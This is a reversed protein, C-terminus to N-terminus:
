NVMEIAMAVANGGGLCLSAIGKTKNNARLAHLLTVLVRTGSAGIPHGLAIAGGRVNVKEEDIALERIGAIVQTAFAENLEFLDVEALSWKAKAAVQRVAEVPAIFLDKPAGGSTHYAVIRAAPQSAQSAQLNRWRDQAVVVVAAAGDNITSANGATVTGSSNFVPRLKALAELTSEARVGEDTTFDITGKKDAIQVPVIENTFAGSKIAEAARLQSRLALADQDQRSVKWKESTYEAHLGMHVREFSCTLGDFVMSDVLTADGLKQGGRLTKLLHPANSMSEMGGAAVVQADGSRIAQAALMVAKLGSGCVKNVTFASVSDPIGAGLAAQRAPAQGVGATLVNGMIVENIETPDIGARSIVAKLAIAGLQPASFNKLSGLLTGIPTRTAGVIYAENM